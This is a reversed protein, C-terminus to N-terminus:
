SRRAATNSRFPAARALRETLIRPRGHRDPDRAQIELLRAMDQEVQARVAERLAWAGGMPDDTSFFARPDLAQAFRFYLRAPRPLPTPGIGRVLPFLADKRHFGRLLSGFPSALLEDADFWVDLMDEAGIAAFSVIPVGTEIALRAFGARRQWILRHREGHRKAVERGGGPFVLVPERAALLARANEPTGDVAGFRRLIERWVPVRFHLHDGLSRPFVGRRRRLESFLIPTDLVGLLTHNGVLLVPGERPVNEIGFSIPDTLARWPSLLGFAVDVFPHSSDFHLANVVSGRSTVDQQM